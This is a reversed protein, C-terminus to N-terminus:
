AHMLTLFNECCVNLFAGRGIVTKGVPVEILDGEDPKLKISTMVVTAINAPKLSDSFHFSLSSLYSKDGILYENTNKHVFPIM